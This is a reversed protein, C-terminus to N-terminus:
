FKLCMEYAKSMVEDATILGQKCDKLIKNLSQQLISAGVEPPPIKGNVKFKKAVKEVKKKMDYFNSEPVNLNIIM